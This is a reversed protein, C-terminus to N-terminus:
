LCKKDKGALFLSQCLCQRCTPTRSGRLCQQVIWRFTWIASSAIKQYLCFILLLLTIIHHQLAASISRGVFRNTQKTWLRCIKRLKITRELFSAVFFSWALGFLRLDTKTKVMNHRGVPVCLYLFNFCLGRPLYFISKGGPTRSDSPQRTNLSSNESRKPHRETSLELNRDELRHWSKTSYISVIRLLTCKAARSLSIYFSSFSFMLTCFISLCDNIFLILRAFESASDDGNWRYSCCLGCM